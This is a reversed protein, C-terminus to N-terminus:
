SRGHMPHYRGARALELTEELTEPQSACWELYAGFSVDPNRRESASLGYDGKLARACAAALSEHYGEFVCLDRLWRSRPEDVAVVREARALAERVFEPNAALMELDYSFQNGDHHAGLLHSVVRTPSSLLGSLDLPAIARERLLFPSRLPRFQLARARWSGRVPNTHSVGVTESRFVVRHLMRLVGLTIQWTNPVHEAVGARRIEDLRAEVVAPRFLAARVLAREAISPKTPM